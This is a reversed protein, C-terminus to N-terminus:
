KEEALSEAMHVLSVSLKSLNEIVTTFQTLHAAQHSAVRGLEAASTSIQDIAQSFEEVIVKIETISSASHEALKRIEKAVIAFGNGETGARAAEIASNIGLLKSQNSINKVVLVINDTKKIGKKFTCAIAALEESTASLEEGQATLEQVTGVLPSLVDSIQRSMARLNEKHEISQQVAIGGIIRGEDGYVPISIAIYPIGYAEEGVTKIVRRGEKMSTQIPLHEPIIDGPKIKLDLKEGPLYILFKDRDAIAIGLDEATLLRLYPALSLLYHLRWDVQGEWKTIVERINMQKSYKESDNEM